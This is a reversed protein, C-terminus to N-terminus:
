RLNQHVAQGTMSAIEAGDCADERVDFVGTNWAHAVRAPPIEQVVM